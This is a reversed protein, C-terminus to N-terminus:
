RSTPDARLSMIYAIVNNRDAEEIMLNPMSRHPTRLFVSIATATMGSANAITRFPAVLLTVRHKM